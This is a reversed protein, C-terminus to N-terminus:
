CDAPLSGDWGSRELWFLGSRIEDALRDRAADLLRQRVAPDYPVDPKKAYRHLVPGALMTDPDAPLGLFRCIRELSDAPADLFRNFDVWLVRDPRAAALRRLSEFECLWAAATAAGIGEPPATSLGMEAMRRGRAAAHGTIDSRSGDLVAALFTEPPVFLLVAGGAPSREMLQPAIENVVSTAKVLSRQAPRFTRSLLGVVAELRAPPDGPRLGRLIGPERVALLGTEGLLRALLTSGCHSVHFIFDCTRPLPLLWPEALEWPVLGSAIGAGLARRDLFSAAAYDAESLRGCLVASRDHNWDLPCLAPSATLAARLQEPDPQSM